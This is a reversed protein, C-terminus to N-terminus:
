VSPKISDVDSTKNERRIFRFTPGMFMGPGVEVGLGLFEGILMAFSLLESGDKVFSTPWKTGGNSWYLNSRSDATQMVEICRTELHLAIITGHGIVVRKGNRDRLNSLTEM